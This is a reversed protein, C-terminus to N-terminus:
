KKSDLHESPENAPIKALISDINVGASIRAQEELAGMAEMTSLKEWVASSVLQSLTIGEQEAFHQAHKHISMPIEVSLTSM